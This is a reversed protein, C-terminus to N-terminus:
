LADSIKRYPEISSMEVVKFLSKRFGHLKKQCAIEVIANVPKTPQDFFSWIEIENTNGTIQEVHELKFGPRLL